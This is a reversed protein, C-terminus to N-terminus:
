RRLMSKSRLVVALSLEELNNVVLGVSDVPVRSSMGDEKVEGFGKVCYWM